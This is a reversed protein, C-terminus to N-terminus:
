LDKSKLCLITDRLVFLERKVHHNQCERVRMLCAEYKVIEEMLQVSALEQM